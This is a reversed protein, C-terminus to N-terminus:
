TINHKRLLTYGITNRHAHTRAYVICVCFRVRVRVCVSFPFVYVCLEVLMRVCNRFDLININIIDDVRQVCNTLNHM